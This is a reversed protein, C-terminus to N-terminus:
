GWAQLQKYYKEPSVYIAGTPCDEECFLCVVCETPYKIYAKNDEGMAIVDMACIMRCKGCGVCKEKDIRELAM